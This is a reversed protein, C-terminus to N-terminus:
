AVQVPATFGQTAASRRRGERPGPGRRPHTGAVAGAGAARAPGVGCADPDFRTVPLGVEALMRRVERKRGETMVVRVAGRDGSAAVVRAREAKALGDDLSVGARVKAMHKATPAAGVEALYEKEM